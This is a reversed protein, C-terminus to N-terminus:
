SPLAPSHLLDAADVLCVFSFRTSAKFDVNFHVVNVEEICLGARVTSM